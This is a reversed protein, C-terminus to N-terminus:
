GIYAHQIPACYVKSSFKILRAKTDTCFTALVESILLSSMPHWIILLSETGVGRIQFRASSLNCLPKWWLATQHISMIILAIFNCIHAFEQEQGVHERIQPFEDRRSNCLIFAALTAASGALHSVSSALTLMYKLEFLYRAFTRSDCRASGVDISSVGENLIERVKEPSALPSKQQISNGLRDGRSGSLTAM